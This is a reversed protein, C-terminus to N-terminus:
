KRIQAINVLEGDKNIDLHIPVNINGTEETYIPLVMSYSKIHEGHKQKQEKVNGPCIVKDAKVNGNISGRILVVNGEDSDVNGNISGDGMLIVIVNDGKVNGNLNGDIKYVVQDATKHDAKHLEYDRSM